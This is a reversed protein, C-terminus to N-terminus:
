RQVYKNRIDVFDKYTNEYFDKFAKCFYNRSREDMTVPECHRRCGNRCIPFWKCAKCEDPQNKSCEIFGIDARNAEIQDFSDTLLNGIKWEDLAYFDCPYVSGDAEVVWQKGCVGQMNCSEPRQGAIIMLVNEFFRNYVYNGAELDKYWKRFLTVLFKSYKEPTLSYEQTGVMEKFPELCEIYQQYMFGERKYFNYIKGINEAVDAHVVTLINFEVQYEEFMKLNKMIRDFTGEGKADVRYKDHIEKTGDLSVGILFNNDHFLKAWREDLMYGNTQLGYNIQCKNYNHTSVYEVVHEFFPFGALTPEGGQFAITLQGTAEKLAKDLVVELTEISMIGYTSVERNIMEDAYFCYKCRMNCNGSAPKILLNLGQM